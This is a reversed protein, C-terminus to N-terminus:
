PKGGQAPARTPLGRKAVLEMAREIPIRIIGQRRDVWGYSHIKAAQEERFRALDESAATQLPPSGFAAAPAPPTDPMDHRLAREFFHVAAFAVILTLVLGVGFWVIARASADRSEAPPRAEPM